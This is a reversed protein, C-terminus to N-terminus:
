LGSWGAVAGASKFRENVTGIGAGFVEYRKLISCDVGGVLGQGLALQLSM